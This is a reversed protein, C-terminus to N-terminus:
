RRGAKHRQTGVEHQRVYPRRPLVVPHNAADINVILGYRSVITRRLKSNRKGTAVPDSM